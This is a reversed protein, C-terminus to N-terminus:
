FPRGAPPRPRATPLRHGLARASPTAPLRGAEVANTLGGICVMPLAEAARAGGVMGPLHDSMMAGESAVEQLGQMVAPMDIYGDDLFTETFREPMLATHNRLCVQLLRKVFRHVLNPLM